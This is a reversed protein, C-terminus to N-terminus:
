AKNSIGGTNCKNGHKKVGTRLFLGIAIMGFIMLCKICINSVSIRTGVGGWTGYPIERMSMFLVFYIISYIATFVTIIKRRTLIGTMFLAFIVPLIEILEKCRWLMFIKDNNGNPILIMYLYALIKSGILVIGWIKIMGESILNNSTKIKRYFIMFLIVYGLIGLWRVAFSLVNVMWYEYGATNRVFYTMQELIWIGINIIGIWIFYFSVKSFDEQTKEIVAKILSINDIATEIKKDM